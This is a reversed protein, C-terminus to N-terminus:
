ARADELHPAGHSLVKVVLDHRRLTRITRGVEDSTRGLARENVVVLVDGARLTEFLRALRQEWSEPADPTPYRFDLIQVGFRTLDTRQELIPPMDDRPVVLGVLRSGEPRAKWWDHNRQLEEFCEPCGIAHHGPGHAVGAAGPSAPVAADTTSGTTDDGMDFGKTDDEM